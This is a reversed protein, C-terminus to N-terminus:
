EDLCDEMLANQLVSTPSFAKHQYHEKRTTILECTECGIIEYHKGATPFKKLEPSRVRPKTGFIKQKRFDHRRYSLLQCIDRLIFFAVFPRM